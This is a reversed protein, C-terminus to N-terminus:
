SDDGMSDDISARGPRLIRFVTRRSVRFRRAIDDVDADGEFRM